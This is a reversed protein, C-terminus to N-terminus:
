KFFSKGLKKQLSKVTADDPALTNERVNLMRLAPLELLQPPLSTIKNHELVLYNLGKLVAIDAPIETISNNMMQLTNLGAAKFVAPFQKLMECDSVEVFTLATLDILSAPMGALKHNNRILLSQLKKLNGFSAPLNEFNCYLATFSSLAQLNGLEEPFIINNGNKIDFSYMETMKGIAKPVVLPKDNSRRIDLELSLLHLDNFAAPFSDIQAGSIKLTRLNKMQCLSNFDEQKVDDLELRYVKEANAFADALSTYNKEKYLEDGSLLRVTKVAAVEQKNITYTLVNSEVRFKTLTTASRKTKYYGSNAPNHDLVYKVTYKGPEDFKFKFYRVYLSDGPQIVTIDKDEFRSDAGDMFDQPNVKKGTADLVLWEDKYFRWAPETNNPNVIKIPAGSRNYLWAKYEVQEHYQPNISRPIIKLVIDASSQTYGKIFVFTCAIVLFKRMYYMNYHSFQFGPLFM